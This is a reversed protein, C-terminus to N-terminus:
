RSEHDLSLRGAAIHPFDQPSMDVHAEVQGGTKLSKLLLQLFRLWEDLALGRGFILRELGLAEFREILPRLNASADPFPINEVVVEGEALIIALSPRRDLYRSLRQHLSNIQGVTEPHQAPYLSLARLGGTIQLVPALSFVQLKADEEPNPM